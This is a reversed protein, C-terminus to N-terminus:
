LGIHCFAGWSHLGSFPVIPYSRRLRTDCNQWLKKPVKLDEKLWRILDPRSVTRLWTQASQLAEVMSLTERDITWYFRMMLLATALDDVSWLSSIVTVTGAYLFASPLGIYDEVLQSADILGTECASLVVRRCNVLELQSVIERFTLGQTTIDARRGDRLTLTPTPPSTEPATVSEEPALILASDLPNAANFTGHCAFHLSESQRLKTVTEPHSFARKTAARNRLIYTNPHFPREIQEVEIDAYPLNETPNQVAFLPLTEGQPNGPRQHLRQLLQCSPVYSVGKPFVDQLYQAETDPQRWVPLAHLPFLHLFRHPVLILNQCSPPLKALIEPLRLIEALRQLRPTLHTQWAQQRQTLEERTSATRIQNYDQLYQNSWQNLTDREEPTFSAVQIDGSTLIFTHFGSDSKSGIYWELIATNDDLLSQIEPLAIPTVRQTLTFDPENIEALLHNLQQIVQQRQQAVSSRVDGPPSLPSGGRSNDPPPTASHPQEPSEQGLLVTLAALQRRLSQLQQRQTETATKPELSADTMMQVLTRSKSREGTTLALDLRQANLCAQVMKEYVDLADVMLEQRRQPLEVWECSQEVAEIALTYGEIAIEWWGQEYGLNGLNRGTELCAIPFAEPTRIQLANRYCIVAQKLNEAREGRIRKHYATALNNQTQAWDEPYATRTSVELAAKYGFIAQELNEAREGRIRYFYANALNHQTMAWDEPYANRTRVELAAELAFIAQELNDAREGRIRNGYAIALDNQTGAWDEPYATRTSVELVAKYASIAQELNEAREGRIRYLYATGLNNQTMAWDEPYATRTYVELAAKYASIAQELNQAREGRICDRYANGLNNQTMAWQDAYATRTYVELVAKYASIAQELNQAREGRIRDRYANALNHQTGAWDEPYATRIRVELVAELASIAKELNEAKQGRIRTQYATALNHQTGAWDEPYATRTYVELASEYASIAKELNEAKQGRIRTQYATALNNQTMAWQEPYATRTYIELAAEAASIARELNQTKKGRIRVCYAKALNNQTTAWQEPKHKRPCVTLVLQYGAIAIELCDARIGLPFQQIHICTNGIVGAMDDASEPYSLVQRSVELFAQQFTSNLKDQHQALFPYVVSSDNKSDIQLLLLERVLQHYAELNPTSKQRRTAIFQEVLAGLEQLKAALQASGASAANEAVQAMIKLLKEDVWDQQQELLTAEEGADCSILDQILQLYPQLREQNM